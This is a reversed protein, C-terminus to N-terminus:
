LNQDPTRMVSIPSDTVSLGPSYTGWHGDLSTLVWWQFHLRDGSGNRWSSTSWSGILSLLHEQLIEQLRNIDHCAGPSVSNCIHMPLIENCGDRWFGRICEVCVGDGEGAWSCLLDNFDYAGRRIEGAPLQWCRTRNVVPMLVVLSVGAYSM